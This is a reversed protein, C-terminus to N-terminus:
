TMYTADVYCVSLDSSVNYTVLVIILECTRGGEGEWGTREPQDTKVKLSVLLLFVVFLRCCHSNKNCDQLDLLFLKSVRVRSLPRGTCIGCYWCFCFCNEIQLNRWRLGQLLLAAACLPFFFSSFFLKEKCWCDMELEAFYDLSSGWSFCLLNQDTLTVPCQQFSLELQLVVVFSCALTKMQPLLINMLLVSCCRFRFVCSNQHFEGMHRHM